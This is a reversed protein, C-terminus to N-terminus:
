SGDGPLNKGWGDTTAVPSLVPTLLSMRTPVASEKMAKLHHQRAVGVAM